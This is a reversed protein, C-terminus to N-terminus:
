RDRRPDAHDLGLLLKVSPIAWLTAKRQDNEHTKKQVLGYDILRKVHHTVTPKASGVAQGVDAPSCGPNKHIHALVRKVQDSLYDEYKITLLPLSVEDHTTDHIYIARVGELICALMAASALIKTGGTVNFLIQTRDFRQMTRRIPVAAEVLDFADVEISEVPIELEQCFSVVVQRAQHSREDKDYFLVVSEVDDRSRITPTFKEPTFGLTGFLVTM